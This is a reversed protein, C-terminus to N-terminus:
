KGYFLANDQKKLANYNAMTCPNFEMLKKIFPEAQAITKVGSEKIYKHIIYYDVANVWELM